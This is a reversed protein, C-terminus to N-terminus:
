GWLGRMIEITRKIGEEIGVCAKWGLSRLKAADLLADNNDSSGKREEPSQQARIVKTGSERAILEALGAISIESNEDAINYVTENGRLLVYILGSVCDAVFTWSRKQLGASKLVIDEGRAANRLFQAVARSDGETQTPGYVYGLRAIKADVGYEDTYARCLIESVRKSEPYQSRVSNFDILGFEHEKYRVSNEICGYVERTSVFLFKAGHKRSLELLNMTGLVNATITGIPNRAYSLPDAPSAAHVIFDFKDDGCPSFKEVASGVLAINNGDIHPFRIRAREADRNVGTLRIKKENHLNFFYVLDVFFSGVLGTSGTLLIKKGAFERLPCNQATELLVQQYVKNEFVMVKDM